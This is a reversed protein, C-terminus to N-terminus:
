KQLKEELSRIQDDNIEIRAGVKHEAVYKDSLSSIQDEFYARYVADKVKNFEEAAEGVKGQLRVIMFLSDTKVIPSIEGVKLSGVAKRLPEQLEPESLWGADGGKSAASDISKKKALWSFDAGNQLSNLIDEAEDMSKVTIQQIRFSAPKMFDKQHSSYYDELAKDSIEIKPIVVRKIFANKLLQNEYRYIMKRLDPTNEYHRSLAEHDIVKFDIWNNIVDEGTKRSYPMAMAVFEAVTLVSGDVEALAREDKSWKEIEEKDGKLNISSLLEHDVKINARDRLYKLYEESREKEKLKKLAREIGGSVKNLEEDPPEKRNILKIIYFRNMATIVDSFEGPKMGTVVKEMYSPMANRTFVIEGGDKGSPHTSYKEALESFNGGKKLQDLIDRAEDESKMEIIGLTFREYYKKYNDTIDKETVSIKKTIEDDHLRVVSERLIYAQIAKQIEPLQDLNMRMAEEIILRDDVMKQVYQSLNLTGAQSLDEKRHAINLSYKLDAETIPEGDVVALVKEKQLSACGSFTTFLLCYVTLLLIGASRTDISHESNRANIAKRSNNFGLFEMFELFRTFKLAM